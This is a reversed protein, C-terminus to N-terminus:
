QAECSLEVIENFIRIPGAASATATLILAGSADYTYNAVAVNIRNGVNTTITPSDNLMPAISQASYMSFSNSPAYATYGMYVRRYYPLCRMLATAYDEPIHKYAISGPYLCLYYIKISSNALLKIGYQTLAGSPNFVNIGTSLQQQGISSGDVYHYATGSVIEVNLVSTFQGNLNIYQNFYEDSSSSATVTISGDSNITVSANVTHWMDLGFGGSTYSSQGRQNILLDGNILLNPPATLPATIIPNGNADTVTSQGALTIGQENYTGDAKMFYLIGNEVKYDGLNSYATQVNASATNATQVAQNANDSATNATQVAEQAQTLVPQVTSTTYSEFLQETFNEVLTQWTDEVPLETPDAPANVVTPTIPHTVEIHNADSPDILAVALMIEGNQQFAAAPVTITGDAYGCVASQKCGNKYWGVMPQITYGTYTEPDNVFSIPVDSSGQAPITDANLTLLLGTRTMTLM